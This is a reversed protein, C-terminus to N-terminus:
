FSPGIIVYGRPGAGPRGGRIPHGFGIRLRATASHLVTVDLGLEAGAGVLAPAARDPCGRLGTGPECWAAGADVFIAGSLRDLHLPWLRHGRDIFALPFRYELSAAWGRTGWADGSEFGRIPLTRRAVGVGQGLVRVGEGAAGGAAFTPAGPGSRLRGAARLALVHNAFGPGRIALYGTGVAVLEDYSRDIDVRAAGSGLTVQRLDRRRLAAGVITFGDERSISFPHARYSAYGVQAFPGAFTTGRYELQFGPADVLTRRERVGEAGLTLSASSRWRQRLVTASVAVRDESELIGAGTAGEPPAALPAYEWGRRAEFELVPNGLGRYSYVLGGDVLRRAPSYALSATYVHRQVLDAGRLVAGFFPDGERFYDPLWARPLLTPLPSYRRIARPAPAAVERPAATAGTPGVRVSSTGSFVPGSVAGPLKGVAATEVRRRSPMPSRWSAPDFPIREIRFGDAHYGSFYIWRGDPSVDPFFAGTLVNTIQRLATTDDAGTKLDYAFLNPIGTRDSAFIVYRGDPSWAPATDVARGRTVQRVVRGLTDLVVVDYEGRAWRGVAIREGDPAWRPFAWHVDAEVAVLPRTVGSELDHVVLRNSAGAGQVAVVRRGDRTVDPETLREGHTLRRVRGDPGIRYLDAFIRYPGDFELQSTILGGDPLWAAPQLENRRARARVRGSAPDHVAVATTSRGDSSAYAVRGDPAVRPFLAYYGDGAVHEPETLGAARLSDALRAYRAELERHWAEYADSFPIGTAHRGIRDFALAPPIWARTTRDILARHVSDGHVRALHAAFAAGYVYAREAGPWRPSGGNMRDISPFEGELAATRLVMEHYAGYVRGAGTLRSEYYTALGETSWRPTGVAPFAPWGIPLRGFVARLAGGLPGGRDLHFIHALEHIVVLDIWDEFDWLSVRDVPPRAYLTIRNSPFPTALGNALDVYDTILIDIRGRPPDTLEASFLAYAREAREAAYVALEEHGAPFTVRFHETEFVRWPADPPVQAVGVAPTLALALLALRRIMAPRIM